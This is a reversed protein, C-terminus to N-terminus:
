TGHHEERESKLQHTVQDQWMWYFFSLSQGTRALPTDDGDCLLNTRSSSELHSNPSGEVNNCLTRLEANQSHAVCRENFFLVNNPHQNMILVSKLDRSTVDYREQEQETSDGERMNVDNYTPKM